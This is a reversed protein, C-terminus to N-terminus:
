PRRDACAHTRSTFSAYCGMHRRWVVGIMAVLLWLLPITTLAGGGGGSKAEATVAVAAAAKATTGV